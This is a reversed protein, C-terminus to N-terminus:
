LPAVLGESIARIVAQARTQVGFKKTLNYIHFNITAESCSLIRSVEWSTKGATVWRLCELERPTLATAPGGTDEIRSVNFYSECAFDRLLSLSALIGLDQRAPDDSAFCLIGAQGQPGHMPYGIGSRLGYRRGEEYFERQRDSAFTTEDWLLPYVHRHCHLAIPDIESYRGDYMRRWAASFNTQVFASQCSVARSPKIGFYVSPFGYQRALKFMAASWENVNKCELLKLMVNLDEVGNVPIM